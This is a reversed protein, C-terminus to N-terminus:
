FDRTTELAAGQIGSTVLTDPGLGLTRNALYAVDDGAADVDITRMTGQFKEGM